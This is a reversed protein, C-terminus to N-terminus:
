DTDEEILIGKFYIAYKSHEGYIVEGMYKGYPASYGGAVLWEKEGYEDFLIITAFTQKDPSVYEFDGNHVIYSEEKIDLYLSKVTHISDLVLFILLFLTFVLSIVAIAKDKRDGRILTKFALIVVVLAVLCIILLLGYIFCNKILHVKISNEYIYCSM